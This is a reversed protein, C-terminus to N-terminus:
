LTIGLMVSNKWQNIMIKEACELAKVAVQFEDVNNKVALREVVHRYHDRTAFDMLPYVKAPDQRLIRDLVSLEEFMEEWNLSTIIRLSTVANGITNQNYAQEQHAQHVIEDADTHIVALKGDIWRIIPAADAGAEMLRHLLKEAYAPKM